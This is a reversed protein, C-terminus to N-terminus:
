RSIFLLVNPLRLLHQLASSTRNRNHPRNMGMSPSSTAEQRNDSSAPTSGIGSQSVLGGQHDDQREELNGMLAKRIIDELGLNSAPDSFSQNRPNISGIFFFLM